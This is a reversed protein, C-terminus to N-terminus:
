SVEVLESDEIALLIAEEELVGPLMYENVPVAMEEEEQQELAPM